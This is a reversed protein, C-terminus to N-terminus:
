HLRTRQRRINLFVDNAPAGPAADLVLKDTIYDLLPPNRVLVPGTMYTGILNNFRIGEAGSSDNASGMEPGMELFFPRDIEGEQGHGARNIFGILKDPLFSAKFVCDGTVRSDSQKTEFDLLGLAEYREGSATMVSRGFLEHANGTALVHAGAEIRRILEGKYQAMNRMCERQSRETGSGIYIVDYADFDIEDGVSKKDVVATCGLANLKRALVAANAWDGYLNMLDHYLHLIRFSPAAYVAHPNRAGADHDSELKEMM